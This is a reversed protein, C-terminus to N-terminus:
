KETKRNQLYDSLKEKALDLLFITATSVFKDGMQSLVSPTEDEYEEVESDAVKPKKLNKKKTKRSSLQNVLVYTLALAGGIVLANKLMRDSRNSIDEVEREMEMRHRESTEILRKKEPDQTELLEM